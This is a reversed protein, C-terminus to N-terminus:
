LAIQEGFLGTGGFNVDPKCIVIPQGDRTQFRRSLKLLGEDFTHLETINWDAATAIYTADKPRCYPLGAAPRQQILARAQTALETDLPAVQIYDHDFYAGIKAASDETRTNPHGCTEVLALAPTVIEILGREAARQVGRAMAGRDEIVQGEDNRVKEDIILAIWSAADWVVRRPSDAM